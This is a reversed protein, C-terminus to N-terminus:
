CQDLESMADDFYLLPNDNLYLLAKNLHDVQEENLTGDNLEKRIEQRVKHVIDEDMYYYNNGTDQDFRWRFATKLDDIIFQVNPNVRRPLDFMGKGYVM